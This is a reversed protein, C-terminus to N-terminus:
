LFRFKQKRGLVRKTTKAGWFAAVCAELPTVSVDQNVSKFGFGGSTGIPRKCAVSVASNLLKQDFHTLKGERFANYFASHATTVDSVKPYVVQKPNLGASLLEERFAGAGSVGDVVIVNAKGKRKVLWDRISSTGNDLRYHEIVEIHTVDTTLDKTAVSLTAFMGTPNFAVAYCLKDFDAMPADTALEAWQLMDFVTKSTYSSWWGLRERAFNDEDMANLESKLSNVQLRGTGLAPNTEYWRSTDTIDGIEDVSWEHWCIGRSKKNHAQERFDKFASNVNDPTPPTGVFITQSNKLPAASIAPLLASLEKQQLIQAEDCVLVDATFGRGAGTSRSFFQISGGNRLYIAEQGQAERISAVERSLEPFRVDQFFGKLRAFAAKSTRVEHATHLIKERHFLMGYLERIELLANKGNQRPVALGCIRATYKPEVFSVEEADAKHRKRRASSLGFWADLVRAQWKDPRLGYGSALKSAFDGETTQWKPEYYFTPACAGWDKDVM